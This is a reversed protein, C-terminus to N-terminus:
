PKGPNGNGPMAKRMSKEFRRVARRVTRIQRREERSIAGDDQKAAMEISQDLTKLSLLANDVQAKMFRNM